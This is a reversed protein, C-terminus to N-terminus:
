VPPCSSGIDARVVLQAVHKRWVHEISRGYPVLNVVEDRVRQGGGSLGAGLKKPRAQPVENRQAM